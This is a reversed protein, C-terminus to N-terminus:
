QSAERRVVWGIVSLLHGDPDRFGTTYLDPAGDNNVVRPDPVFVIGRAKMATVTEFM